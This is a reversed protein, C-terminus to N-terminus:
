FHSNLTLLTAKQIGSSSESHGIASLPKILYITDTKKKKLKEDAEQLNMLFFFFFSYTGTGWLLKQLWIQTSLHDKFM